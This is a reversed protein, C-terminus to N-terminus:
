KKMMGKAKNLYSSPNMKPQSQAQKKDQTDQHRKKAENKKNLISIVLEFEYYPWESITRDGGIGSLQDYLEVKNEIL